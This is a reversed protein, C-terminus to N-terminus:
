KVASPGSETCTHAIMILGTTVLQGTSEVMLTLILVLSPVAPLIVKSTLLTVVYLYNNNIM